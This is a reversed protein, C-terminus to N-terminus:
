GGVAGSAASGQAAADDVDRDRSDEDEDEDEVDDDPSADDGDPEDEDADTSDPTPATFEIDETGEFPPIPESRTTRVVLVHDLRTFDVFPSVRAELTFQAKSEPLESVTGIPIGAPFLGGQYSSTVIEDGVDVTSEPDLLSLLMPDGGRGDLTGVEGTRATRAAASFNPDIALLVRSSTPTVQIVRGVLGDGNVVPMDRGVGDDSGAGITITWEFNSPSLAVTRAAVTDLETRERIALLERLDSNERELDARTRTRAELQQVHERLAANESRISFLERVSGTVEGLPSILWTIGDQVPQLVASAGGRLRDLGGDDGGRFDITVLALACIIVAALVIRARSRQFM